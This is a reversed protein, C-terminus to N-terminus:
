KLADQISIKNGNKFAVIFSSEYGKNKAELLLRKAEEYSATQEFYYKYLNNEIIVSTPNLGKFNQPVLEVNKGSASIQIKFVVGKDTEVIKKPEVNPKSAVKTIVPTDKVQMQASNQVPKEAKVNMNEGFYEKKYNLIATTLAKALEEQGRDSNLYEGEPKYSVFGLETLISPMATQNLVLFPGQKVGRNKRELTNTFENQIKTSLTISQDLYEEQLLTIGIVSEPSNPNYGAYKIKYDSELTIVANEKKAVELNSANKTLGMVFTETGHADSKAVANCHISLFLNANARNAIRAREMLEIFVDTSRTYIVEIDDYRELNKGVKLAVKLAINKEVFGYYNAGFDKGGHGPDLVVKFKTNAQAFGNFSTILVLCFLAIKFNTLFNIM